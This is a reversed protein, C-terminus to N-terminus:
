MGLIVPLIFVYESLKQNPPHGINKTNPAFKLHKGQASTPLVYVRDRGFVTHLTEIVGKQMINQLSLKDQEVVDETGLADGIRGLFEIARDSIDRAIIKQAEVVDAEVVGQSIQKAGTGGISRLGKLTEDNPTYRSSILLRQEALYDYFGTLFKATSNESDVFLDSKPIVCIFNVQKLDEEGRIDRLDQILKGLLQIQSINARSKESALRDSQDIRDASTQEFNEELEGWMIGSAGTTLPKRISPEISLDFFLVITEAHQLVDLIIPDTGEKKLGRVAVEGSIDTFVFNLRNDADQTSEVTLQISRRSGEPSPEPLEGEWFQRMYQENMSVDEDSAFTIRVGLAPANTYFNTLGTLMVTSKGTGPSGILVVPHTPTSKPYWGCQDKKGYYDENRGAARTTASQSTIVPIQDSPVSGSPGTCVFHVLKSLENTMLKTFDLRSLNQQGNTTTPTLNQLQNIFDDALRLNEKRRTLTRSTILQGLRHPSVTVLKSLNFAVGPRLLGSFVEEVNANHHGFLLALVYLSRTIRETLDKKDYSGLVPENLVDLAKTLSMLYRYLWPCAEEILLYLQNSEAKTSELPSYQPNLGVSKIWTKIDEQEFLLDVVYGVQVQPEIGILINKIHTILIEDTPNEIKTNISGIVIEFEEMAEIEQQLLRNWEHTDLYFSVKNRIERAYSGKHLGDKLGHEKRDRYPYGNDDISKINFGQLNRIELEREVGQLFRRYLSIIDNIEKRANITLVMEYSGSQTIGMPTGCSPCIIDPLEPDVTDIFDKVTNKLM